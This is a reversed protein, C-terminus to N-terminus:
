AARSSPAADTEAPRLRDGATPGGFTRRVVWTPRGQVERYTRAVYEGVIAVAATQVAAVVAVVAILCGLSIGARAPGSAPTTLCSAAAAAGVVALLAAAAWTLRIPADSSIVLADAALALLRRVNYKTQGAPRAQRDYWVPEHRFGAWPVLSRMYRRKEPLSCVAEVVARDLLKFDGTDIPMPYPILAAFLRHFLSATFLKFATEGARSRRRGYAVDVGSRWSRVMELIVEPPDQLDADTIVVADGRAAALGASMAAQQGFNRSLEIVQVRDDRAAISELRELTADRSGDDVYIIEFDMGTRPLVAALCRHTSEIVAEEDHCPVVISLLGHSAGRRATAHPDASPRSSPAAARRPDHRNMAHHERASTGGDHRETGPIPGDRPAAHRRASLRAKCLTAPHPRRHGRGRAAGRVSRRIPAGARGTRRRRGVRSFRDGRRFPGRDM